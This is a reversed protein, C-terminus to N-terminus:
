KNKAQSRRAKLGNLRQICIEEHKYFFIHGTSTGKQYHSMVETINRLHYGNKKSADIFDKRTPNQLTAECSNAKLRYWKEFGKEYYPQNNCGIIVISVIFLIALYLYKNM